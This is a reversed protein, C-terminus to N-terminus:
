RSGWVMVVQSMSCFRLYPLPRMGSVATQAVQERTVIVSKACAFAMGGEETKM